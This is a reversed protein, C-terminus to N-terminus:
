MVSWSNMTGSGILKLGNELPSSDDKEEDQRSPSPPVFNWVKLSITIVFTHATRPGNQFFNLPLHTDGRVMLEQHNHNTLHILTEGTKPWALDCQGNSKISVPVTNSPRIRVEQLLDIVLIWKSHFLLHQALMM